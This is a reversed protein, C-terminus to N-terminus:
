KCHRSDELADNLHARLNPTEQKAVESNRQRLNRHALDRVTSLGDLLDLKPQASNNRSSDDYEFLIELQHSM